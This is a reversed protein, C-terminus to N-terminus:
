MVIRNIREADSAECSLFPRRSVRRDLFSEVFQTLHHTQTLPEQLVEAVPHALEIACQVQAK